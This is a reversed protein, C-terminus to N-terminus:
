YKFVPFFHKASHENGKAARKPSCNIKRGGPNVSQGM